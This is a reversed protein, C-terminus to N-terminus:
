DRAVGVIKLFSRQVSSIPGQSKSPKVSRLPDVGSTRRCSRPAPRPKEVSGPQGARTDSSGAACNNGRVIGATGGISPQPQLM